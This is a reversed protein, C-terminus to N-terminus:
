KESEKTSNSYRTGFGIAQLIKVAEVANDIIPEKEADSMTYYFPDRGHFLRNRYQQFSHVVAYDEDSIAKSKRLITLRKDFTLEKLIVVAKEDIYFLGYQRAVLQDTDFEVLHWSLLILDSFRKTRRFFEIWSENSTQNPHDIESM